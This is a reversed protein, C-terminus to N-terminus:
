EGFLKVSRLYTRAQEMANDLMGNPAQPSYGDELDLIYDTSNTVYIEDGPLSMAISSEADNVTQAASRSFTSGLRGPVRAPVTYFVPGNIGVLYNSLALSTDVPTGYVLSKVLVSAVEKKIENVRTPLESARQDMLAAFKRFDM